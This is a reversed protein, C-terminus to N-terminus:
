FYVLSSSSVSVHLIYVFMCIIQTKKNNILTIHVVSISISECVCM